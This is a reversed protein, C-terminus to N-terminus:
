RRLPAQPIVMPLKPLSTLLPPPPNLFLVAVQFIPPVLRLSPGCGAAAMILCLVEVSSYTPFFPCCQKQSSCSSPGPGHLSRSQIKASANLSTYWLSPFVPPSSPILSICFLSAPDMQKWFLHLFSKSSPPQLIKEQRCSDSGPDVQGLFLIPV